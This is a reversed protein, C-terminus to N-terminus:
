VERQYWLVIDSINVSGTGSMYTFLISNEPFDPTLNPVLNNNQIVEHFTFIRGGSHHRDVVQKGNVKVNFRFNDANDLNIKFALISPDEAYISDLDFKIEKFTNPGTPTLTFEDDQIIKYDTVRPMIKDELNNAVISACWKGPKIYTSNTV